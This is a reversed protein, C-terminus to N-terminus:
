RRGRRTKGGRCRSGARDMMITATAAASAIVAIAAIVAAVTVHHRGADSRQKGHRWAHQGEGRRVLLLEVGDRTSRPRVDVMGRLLWLVVTGSDGIDAQGMM